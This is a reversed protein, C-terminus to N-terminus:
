KVGGKSGGHMQLINTDYTFMLAERERKRKFALSILEEMLGEFTLGTHEWLYFSLSGPITNIENVYIDGTQSDMLFDIRAVGSCCLIKFTDVALGTITNKNDEDLDAPIKRMAGSMGKGGGSKQMYKDKYSLIEDCSIPEECVSARAELKDGLVSCNIERLATIAKEVLVRDSFSVALEIANELEIRDDAKSIGVSSGLNSPKVIVPYGIAEAKEIIATKENYWDKSNFYICDLVPIGHEKLLKKMAIKDMGIASSIVNCGAYPIDLLELFGQLTGDEGNTGHIVPVAVDISGVVSNFLTSPYKIMLKKEGDNVINIRIADKLLANIDKYNKIDKLKEGTYMLGGKTIYVPQVNYKDKNIADMAQLASIISVEHEVSKGGYFVAVNIKM